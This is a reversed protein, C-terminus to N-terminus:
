LIKQIKRKIELVKGTFMFVSFFIIAILMEIFHPFTVLNIVAM